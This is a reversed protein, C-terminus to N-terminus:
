APRVAVTTVIINSNPSVSTFAIPNNSAATLQQYCTLMSSYAAGATAGKTITQELPMPWATVGTNQAGQACVVVWHTAASGWSPTLSPPDPNLFSGAVPTAAEPTGQYTGAQIREVHAAVTEAGSLVLNVTTGGETGAAVKYYIMLRQAAGSATSVLQTWGTPTTPTPTSSTDCNAYMLLLDGANVTAPMPIPHSTLDSDTVYTTLSLRTPYNGVVGGIAALVQQIASM